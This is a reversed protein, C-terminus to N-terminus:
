APAMPSSSKNRQNFNTSTLASIDTGDALKLTTISNDITVKHNNTFTGKLGTNNNGSAITLTNTYSSDLGYYEISSDATIDRSSGGNKVKLTITEDTSDQDTSYFGRVSDLTSDDNKSGDIVNQNSGPLSGGM